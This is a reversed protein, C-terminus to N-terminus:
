QEPTLRPLADGGRSRVAEHRKLLDVLSRAEHIGPGLDLRTYYALRDEALALPTKSEKDRASVNAGQKILMAAFDKRVAKAAVHLPTQGEHQTAELNAGHALLAEAAAKDGSMAAFHLATQGLQDTANVDAGKSLLFEVVQVRKASSIKDNTLAFQLPRRGIGDPEPQNVNAGRSVLERIEELNGFVVAKHLGKLETTGKEGTVLVFSQPAIAAKQEKPAKDCGALFFICAALAAGGFQYKM